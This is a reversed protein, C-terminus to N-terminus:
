FNVLLLISLGLRSLFSVHYRPLSPLIGTVFTHGAIRQPYFRRRAQGHCAEGADEHVALRKHRPVYIFFGTVLFSHWCFMCSTELIVGFPGSLVRYEQVYPLISRPLSVTVPPSRAESLKFVRYCIRYSWVFLIFFLLFVHYCFSRDGQWSRPYM